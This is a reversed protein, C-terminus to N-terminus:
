PGSWVTIEVARAAPEPREPDGESAKPGHGTVRLRDSAVGRRMLDNAVAQARQRSLYLNYAPDGVNDAYGNIEAVAGSQRRMTEAIGDLLSEFPGDIETRNRGFLVRGNALATPVSTTAPPPEAQPGPAAVPPEAQPVPAAVPPQAPPVPAAPEAPLTTPLPAAPRDDGAVQLSATERATGASIQTAPRPAVAVPPAPRAPATAAAEGGRPTPAVSTRPQPQPQAQPPSGPGRDATPLSDPRILLFAALVVAGFALVLAPWVVFHWGPIRRKRRPAPVAPIAEIVPEDLREPERVAPPPRDQDALPVSRQIPRQEEFRTRSPAEAQERSPADTPAPPVTDRSEPPPPSQMTQVPAASAGPAEGVDLGHDIESWDIPGGPPRGHGSGVGETPADGGGPGADTDRDPLALKEQNLERIVLLADAPRITHLSSISGHLLLRSCILNIRRPIGQSFHYILPVVGREFVPDGRWGARELRHRVYGITEQPNLPELNWAAILRQHLQEMNRDQVVSRLSEQGLLVIQLLPRGSRQLNTLLRLEVLAEPPLEQAEDIILLSRLGQRQQQNLFEMLRQLVQAKRPADSDLGFEYATMRLLDDAGLQTSVLTAVVVERKPLTALLDQVLTTKGTGPRGTIMVFGEARHLAYQVYAKARAYSQHSFCFRPDASLRFPDETLGYFAEYM